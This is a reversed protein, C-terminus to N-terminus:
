IGPKMHYFTICDLSLESMKIIYTSHLIYAEEHVDINQTNNQNSSCSLVFFLGLILVLFKIMM